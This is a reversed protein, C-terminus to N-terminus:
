ASSASPTEKSNITFQLRLEGYVYFRTIFAQQQIHLFLYFPFTDSWYYNLSAFVQYLKEATNRRLATSYIANPNLHLRYALGPIFQRKHGRSQALRSNSLASPPPPVKRVAYSVPIQSTDTTSTTAPRPPLVPPGLSIASMAPSSAMSSSRDILSFVSGSHPSVAEYSGGLEPEPDDHEGDGHDSLSVSHFSSSSTAHNHGRGNRPYVHLGGNSGTTPGLAGVNSSKPRPTPPSKMHSNIMASYSISDGDFSSTSPTSLTTESTKRPPLPPARSRPPSVKVFDSTISGVMLSHAEDDNQKDMKEGTSMATVTGKEGERTVSQEEAGAYIDIPPKRVANQKTAEQNISEFARIRAQIASTTMRDAIVLVTLLIIDSTFVFFSPFINASTSDLNACM